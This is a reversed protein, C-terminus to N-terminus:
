CVASAAAKVMTAWVWCAAGVAVERDGVSGELGVEGAVLVFVGRGKGVEPVACNSGVPAAVRVWGAGCTWGVRFELAPSLWSIQLWGRVDQCPRVAFKVMALSVLGSPVITSEM